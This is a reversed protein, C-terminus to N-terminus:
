GSRGPEDVVTRGSRSGVTSSSRKEAIRDQAIAVARPSPAVLTGPSGDLAAGAPERVRHHGRRVGRGASSRRSTTTPRWSTNTPSAGAPARPDPDLVMTRYGMTRAAMLAYRGLQGGGLM